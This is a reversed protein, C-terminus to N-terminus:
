VTDRTQKRERQRERKREREGESQTGKDRKVNDQTHFISFPFHRFEKHAKSSSFAECITNQTEEEGQHSIGSQSSTKKMGKKHSEIGLYPLAKMKM